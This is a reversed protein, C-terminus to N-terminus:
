LQRGNMHILAIGEFHEHGTFVRPLISDSFDSLEGDKKFWAVKGWATFHREEIVKGAGDSIALISGL